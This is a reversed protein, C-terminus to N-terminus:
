RSLKVSNVFILSPLSHLFALGSLSNKLNSKFSGLSQNSATGLLRHYMFWLKKFNTLSGGIWRGVVYAEGVSKAVDAVVFTTFRREDVFLMHRARNTVYRIVELFYRYHAATQSLNIISFNKYSGFVFWHSSLLSFRVAAGLQVNHQLMQLLTFELLRFTSFRKYVRTNLFGLKMFVM